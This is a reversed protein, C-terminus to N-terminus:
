AWTHKNSLGVQRSELGLPIESNPAWKGDLVEIEWSQKKHAFNPASLDNKPPEQGGSSEFSGWVEEGHVL